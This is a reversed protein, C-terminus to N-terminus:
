NPGLPFRLGVPLDARHVTPIGLSHHPVRTQASRGARVLEDIETSEMGTMRKLIELAGAVPTSLAIAGSFCGSLGVISTVSHMKHGNLEPHVEGVRCDSQLM